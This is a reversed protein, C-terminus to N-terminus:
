YGPLWFGKVISRALLFRHIENAGDVIRDARAARYIHEFPLDKSLGIGGHIQIARDAVLEVTESAAIKLMSIESRADQGNDLKWAAHYNIWRLSEIAIASDALMWQVAQRESIPRGFTVRGVAYDRALTLCKLSLAVSRAGFALRIGGLSGQLITWGQGPEGLVNSAPVEVDQFSIEYPSETWAGTPMGIVPIPGEVTFGPTDADVLFGTVGDRGETGKLRAFLLVFDCEEAGSILTKRGNIVYRGDREEASTTMMSPDSGAGPETIAVEALKERTITPDLYREKQEENCLYLGEIIPRGFASHGVLTAFIEEQVAVRGVHGIDVPGGYEHPVYLGWLGADKVKQTLEARKEKPLRYEEFGYERELPLLEKDVFQRVADRIMRVEDSLSFDM